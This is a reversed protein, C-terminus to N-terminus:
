SAKKFGPLLGKYIYERIHIRCLLYNRFVAKSRGCELCRTYRRSTYKPTRQSKIILAKRTMNSINNICIKM